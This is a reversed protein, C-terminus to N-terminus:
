KSPAVSMARIFSDDLETQDREYNAILRQRGPDRLLRPPKAGSEPGFNDRVFARFKTGDSPSAFKNVGRMYKLGKATLSQNSKKAPLALLSTADPRDLLLNWISQENARFDEYQWLTVNDRGVISGVTRVLPVWSLKAVDIQKLYQKFTRTERRTFVRQVYSSELFRDLSRVSLFVKLNWGPFADVLHRMAQDANPYPAGHKTLDFDGLFNEYSVVVLSEDQSMRDTVIMRLQTSMRALKQEDVIDKEIIRKFKKRYIREEDRKAWLDVFDIGEGRLRQRNSRLRSQMYTTATKHAGVHLHITKTANVLNSSV